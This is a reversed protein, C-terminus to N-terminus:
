TVTAPQDATPTGVRGDLSLPVAMYHYDGAPLGGTPGAKAGVQGTDTWTAESNGDLTLVARAIRRDPTTITAADRFIAVAPCATYIGTYLRGGYAAAVLNTGDADSSVNHWPKNADGAPQRETWTAGSNASTYIRGDYIAVILNTGDTDSDAATWSKDAAGAPQRETWSAGGNTSTYLRGNYTGALLKTGDSNSAIATWEKDAAGAPQRETWTAGSDASTYLRGPDAAVILNTGDADSAAPRWDKDAAGAPQRETWTAGSDASTYLRGACIGALLNTGDADSALASWQKDADGAPKRETWNAGSDASTYLRGPYICAILNTGDADSAVAYWNKVADGAPKRETWDTGSNSSTYLRGGYVAVILNTGDADSATAEWDKVADGAPKRETWITNAVTPSIELEVQGDGGTATLVLTPAYAAAPPTQLALMPGETNTWREMNAKFFANYPSINQQLALLFWSAQDEASLTQWIKCLYYVMARIGVEKATRDNRPKNWNKVYTRHHYTQYILTKALGGGATISHLPGTVYAM